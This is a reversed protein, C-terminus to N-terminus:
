GTREILERPMENVDWAVIEGRSVDVIVFHCNRPCRPAHFLEGRSDMLDCVVSMNDGHTVAVIVEGRADRIFSVMKKKLEEWPTIRNKPDLKWEKDAYVVVKGELIGFWRERLREDLIPKM